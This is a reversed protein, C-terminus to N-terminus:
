MGQFGYKWLFPFFVNEYMYVNAHKKFLQWMYKQPYNCNVLQKWIVQKFRLFFKLKCM